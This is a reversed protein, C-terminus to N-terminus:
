FYNTPNTSQETGPINGRAFECGINQCNKDKVTYGRGYRAMGFNIKKPDVTTFWFPLLMRELEALSTHPLMYPGLGSFNADWLGHLDYSMLNFWDVYQEMGKIDFGQLYPFSAPIAVSLGFRKGFAERLERVLSIYNEKDISRGNRDGASPYEWDLDLGQFGYREMFAVSSRIFAARTEQKAAMNTWTHRTSTHNESFEWGGVAIWTELTASRKNTFQEYLNFDGPDAPSMEFTRPDMSAFAFTLHTFTEVEL